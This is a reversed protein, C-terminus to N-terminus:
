ISTKMVASCQPMGFTHIIYRGPADRVGLKSTHVDSATPSGTANDRLFQLVACKGDRLQAIQAFFYIKAQINKRTEVPQSAPQHHTNSPFISHTPTSPQPQTRGRFFSQPLEARSVINLLLVMHAAATCACTVCM